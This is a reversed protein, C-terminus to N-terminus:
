CLVLILIYETGIICQASTVSPRYFADNNFNQSDQRDRQQFGVIIRIPNNIGEQTGLEFPWFNQTNVEKTSDSREVNQLQTPTKRLIQKSLVAQQLISPIYHRVYWESVIIKIKGINTAQMQKM